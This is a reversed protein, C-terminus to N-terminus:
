QQVPCRAHCVDSLRKVTLGVLHGDAGLEPEVVTEIDALFLSTSCLLLSNRRNGINFQNLFRYDNIPCCIILIKRVFM